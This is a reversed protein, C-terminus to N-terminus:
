RAAATSAWTGQRRQPLAAPRLVPLPSLLRPACVGSLHASDCHCQGVADAGAVAAAVAHRAAQAAPASAARPAKRQRGWLCRDCRQLAAAHQRCGLAARGWCHSSSRVAPPQRSVAGGRAQRVNGGQQGVGQRLHPWGGPLLQPLPTVLGQALALACLLGARCGAPVEAPARQRALVDCVAFSAPSAAPLAHWGATRVGQVASREGTAPGRRQVAAPLERPPSLPVGQM